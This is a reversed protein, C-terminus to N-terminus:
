GGDMSVCLIIVQAAFETVLIQDGPFAQVFGEM